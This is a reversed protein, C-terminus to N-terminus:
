QIFPKDRNKFEEFSYTRGQFEKLDVLRYKNDPNLTSNINQKKYDTRQNHEM